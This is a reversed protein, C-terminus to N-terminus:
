KSQHNRQFCLTKKNEYSMWVEKLNSYKEAYDSSLPSLRLTKDGVDFIDLINLFRQKNGALEAFAPLEGESAEIARLSVQYSIVRQESILSTYDKNQSSLISEVSFLVAMVLISVVIMAGIFVIKKNVSKNRKSGTSDASFLRKINDLLAM